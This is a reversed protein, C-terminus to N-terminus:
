FDPCELFDHYSMPASIFKRGNKLTSVAPHVDENMNKLFRDITHTRVAASARGSPTLLPSPLEDLHAEVIRRRKDDEDAQRTACGFIGIGKHLVLIFSTATSLLSYRRILM